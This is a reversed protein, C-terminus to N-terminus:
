GNAKLLEDPLAEQPFAQGFALGEQQLRERQEVSLLQSVHAVLVTEAERSHGLTQSRFM